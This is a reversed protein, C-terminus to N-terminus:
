RLYTWPSTISPNVHSWLNSNGYWKNKVDNGLELDPSAIRHKWMSLYQDTGFCPSSHYTKKSPYLVKYTILQNTRAPTRVNLVLTLDHHLRVINQSLVTAALTFLREQHSLWGPFSTLFQDAVTRDSVMTLNCWSRVKTNFTVVGGLVLWSIMWLTSYGEFFVYWLLGHKPVSWYRDIPFCLIAEGSRSSPFSTLFLHYPLLLRHLWTLGEIM